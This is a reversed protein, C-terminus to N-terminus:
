KVVRKLGTHDAGVIRVIYVGQQLFGTQFELRNAGKVVDFEKQMLVKGDTSVMEMKVKQDSDSHYAVSAQYGLPNPAVTMRGYADNSAIVLMNSYSYSGDLETMKLRYYTSEWEPRGDTFSWAGPGKSDGADSRGIKKFHYANTSREIEFHSFGADPEAEWNLIVGQESRRGSFSLLRVPLAPNIGGVIYFSSFSSAPFLLYGASGDYAGAQVPQISESGEPNLIGSSPCDQGTKTVTLDHISTVQEDESANLLDTLENNTFFLKVQLGASVPLSPTITFNRDLYTRGERDFRIASGNVYYSIDVTGLAETGPIISLILRGNDDIAFEEKPSMAPVPNPIRAEICDNLLEPIVVETKCIRVSQRPTGGSIFTHPPAKQRDAVFHYLTGATLYGIAHKGPKSIAGIGTWGVPSNRDLEDPKYLYDIPEDPDASDVVELYYVGSTPPMFSFWAMKGPTSNGNSNVPYQGSFDWRGEGDGILVASTQCVSLQPPSGPTFPLLSTNLGPCGVSRFYYRYNGIENVDDIVILGQPPAPHIVFNGPAPDTGMGGPSNPGYEVILWEAPCNPCAMFYSLEGTPSGAVSPLLSSLPPCGSTTFSRIEETCDQNLLDGNRPIIKWFYTEGPAFPSEFPFNQSFPLTLTGGGAQAIEYDVKRMTQPTLGVYLDYATAGTVTSWRLLGNIHSIDTAEDAPLTLLSAQCLPITKAVCIDFQSNGPPDIGRSGDQNFVQIYYDTGATTLLVASDKEAMAGTNYCGAIIFSQNCGDPVRFVRFSTNIGAVPNVRVTHYATEAATFRFWVSANLFQNTCNLQGLSITPPAARYLSTTSTESADSYPSYTTGSLTLPVANCPQSNPASEFLVFSTAASACSEPALSGNRPVIYWYYTGPPLNLASIDCYTNATSTVLVAEEASSGLYVDYEMALYSEEWILFSVNLSETGAAPSYNVTCEPVPYYACIGFQSNGVPDPGGGGDHQFVRVYLMDTFQGYFGPVMASVPIEPDFGRVCGMLQLEMDETDCQGSVPYYVQFSGEFNQISNLQIVLNARDDFPIKFWVDRLDERLEYDCNYDSFIGPGSSVTANVLSTTSNEGNDEFLECVSVAPLVLRAGCPDDNSPQAYVGSIWGLIALFCM